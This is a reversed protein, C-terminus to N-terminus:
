DCVLKEKGGFADGMPFLFIHHANEKYCLDILFKINNVQHFIGFLV